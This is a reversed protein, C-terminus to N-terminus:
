KSKNFYAKVLHPYKEIEREFLSSFKTGRNIVSQIYKNKADKCTKSQSTSCMYHGLFYIDIKKYLRM